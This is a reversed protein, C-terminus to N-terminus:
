SLITGGFICGHETTGFVTGAPTTASNRAGQFLTGHLYTGDAAVVTFDGSGADFQADNNSVAALVELTRDVELTDTQLFGAAVNGGTQDDSNSELVAGNVSTKVYLEAIVEDATSNRFCKGYVTFPAKTAITTEPAATRAAAVTAGDTAAVGKMAVRHVGIGDEDIQTGTLTNNKVDVGQVTQAAYDASTLTGDKVDVGNVAGTKIDRSEISSDKITKSVVSNRPLAALAVGGLAAFLAILAVCNAFTVRRRLTTRFSSM